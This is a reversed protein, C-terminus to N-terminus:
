QYVKSTSALFRSKLNKYELTKLSHLVECQCESWQPNNKYELTKLSHLVEGYQIGPREYNKYELTKLSHLVDPM